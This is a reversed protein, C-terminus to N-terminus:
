HMRGIVLWKKFDRKKYCNYLQQERRTLKSCEINKLYKDVINEASYVFACEKIHQPLHAIRYWLMFGLEYLILSTEINDHPINIRKNDRLIVELLCIQDLRNFSVKSAGNTTNTPYENYYYLPEAIYCFSKAKRYLSLRVVMDEFSIHEPLKIIHFIEKRYIAGWMFGDYKLVFSNDDIYSAPKSLHESVVGNTIKKFGFKVIDYEKEYAKDLVKDVFSKDVYDDSDIFTIYSGKAYLIGKNRAKGPGENIQTLVTIKDCINAYEKM